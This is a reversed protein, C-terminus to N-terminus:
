YQAQRTITFPFARVKEFDYYATGNIKEKLYLYATKM